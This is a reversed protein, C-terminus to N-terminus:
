GMTGPERDQRRCPGLRGATRGVLRVRKRGEGAGSIRAWRTVFRGPLQSGLSFVATRWARCSAVALGEAM